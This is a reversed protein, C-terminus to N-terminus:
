RISIRRFVTNDAQKERTLMGKETDGPLRKGNMKM